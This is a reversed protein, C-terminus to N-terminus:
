FMISGGTSAAAQHRWVSSQRGAEKEKARQAGHKIDSRMMLISIEARGRTEGKNEGNRAV